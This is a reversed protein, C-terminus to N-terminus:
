MNVQRTNQSKHLQRHFRDADLAKEIERKSRAVVLVEDDVDGLKDVAFHETTAAAAVAAVTAARLGARLRFRRKLSKRTRDLIADLRHPLTIQIDYKEYRPTDLVDHACCVM